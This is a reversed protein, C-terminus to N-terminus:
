VLVLKQIKGVAGILVPSGAEYNVDELRSASTATLTFLDVSSPLKLLKCEHLVAQRSQCAQETSGRFNGQPSGIEPTLQLLALLAYGGRQPFLDLRSLAAQLLLAAAVGACPVPRSCAEAEM